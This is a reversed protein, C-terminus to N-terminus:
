LRVLCEALVRQQGLLETIPMIGCNNGLTSDIPAGIITENLLGKTWSHLLHYALWATIFPNRLESDSPSSRSTFSMLAM